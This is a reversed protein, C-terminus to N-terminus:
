PPREELVLKLREAALATLNIRTPSDPV